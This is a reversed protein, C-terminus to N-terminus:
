FDTFISKMIYISIFVKDAYLTKMCVFNPILNTELRHQSKM